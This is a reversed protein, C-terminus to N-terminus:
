SELSPQGAFQWRCNEGRDQSWFGTGQWLGVALRSAIPQSGAEAQNCECDLGGAKCLAV